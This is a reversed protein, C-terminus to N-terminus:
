NFWNAIETYLSNITAALDGLIGYNRLIRNEYDTKANNLADLNADVQRVLTPYGSSVLSDQMAKECKNAWLNGKWLPYKQQSFQDMNQKQDILDSKAQKMENYIRGIKDAIARFKANEAHIREQERRASDLLHYLYNLSM